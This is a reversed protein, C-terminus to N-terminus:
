PSTLNLIEPGAVLNDSCFATSILSEDCKLEDMFDDDPLFSETAEFAEVRYDEMKDGFYSLSPIHDFENFM